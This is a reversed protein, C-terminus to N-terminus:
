DPSPRTNPDLLTILGHFDIQENLLPTRERILFAEKIQLRRRNPERAIITTNEVLDQRTLKRQHTNKVHTLISGSQLHCTLRRSLTTTTQGIYCANHQLTCDGFPCQFMYVVDTAQLPPEKLQNNKMVLNSTRQGQYYILLQVSDNRNKPKVNRQIITKLVREDEKYAPSMVNKYYLRFTQGGQKKAAKPEINNNLARNIEEDLMQTSYGNNTLTQRINNLEQHLTEWTSCTKLARRLYTRVVGVKYRLPCESLANLCRGADTKKRHVQLDHHGDSINVCVDLFPLKKDTGIEYTFKLISKSEMEEKLKNLDGENAVELYIDDVYRKYIHPRVTFDSSNFVRDEIENMYANAFLVGLPSGMAIGEKQRYLNGNPDRFLAKSTCAQLMKEMIKESLAPPPLTEHKYALKLLIQTTEKVPVNTFLSEADLSALIGKPQTAKLLDIFEDTSRLTNTTPVYPTLLKNLQKALKYSPTPIQSLIPRLPNGDKHIKM